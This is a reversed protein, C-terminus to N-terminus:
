SAVSLKLIMSRHPVFNPVTKAVPHERFFEELRASKETDDITIDEYFSQTVM